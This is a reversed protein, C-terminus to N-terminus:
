WKRLLKAVSSYAILLMEKSAVNRMGLLKEGTVSTTRKAIDGM